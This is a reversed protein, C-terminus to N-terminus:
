VPGEVRVIPKGMIKRVADAREFPVRVMVLKTAREGQSNVVLDGYGFVRGGLSQSVILDGFGNPTVIFSRLSIIGSRIELGDQRLVYSNSAWCVVLDIISLAWIVAFVVLTWLFLPADSLIKFTIGAWAELVFFLIATVIVAVTRIAAAPAVWPKGYWVVNADAAHGNQSALCFVVM